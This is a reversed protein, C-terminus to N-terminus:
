VALSTYIDFYKENVIKFDQYMSEINKMDVTFNFKSIMKVFNNSFENFSFFSEFPFIFENETLNLRQMKKLHLHYKVSDTFIQTLVTLKRDEKDHKNDKDIKNYLKVYTSPLTSLNMTPFVKDFILRVLLDISKEEVSIVVRKSNPFIKQLEEINNYCAIRTPPYYLNTKQINENINEELYSIKNEDTLTLWHNIEGDAHFNNFMDNTNLHASKLDNFIQYNPKYNISSRCQDTQMLFHYMMSGFAGPTYNIFICKDKFQNYDIL